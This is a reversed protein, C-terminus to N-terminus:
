VTTQEKYFLIRCVESVRVLMLCPRLNQTQGKRKSELYKELFHQEVNIQAKIM